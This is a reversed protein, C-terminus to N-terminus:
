QGRKSREEEVRHSTRLLRISTVLGIGGVLNGFASWGMAGLFDLWGYPTDGTALGAMMLISDLVSHFLQASVLVFPMVIAPVIKVGLSEDAHQMRTMLTLVGGALVALWFSRWSVGLHAYYTGSEVAIPHLQPLAAMAIAAFVLGGVLNLALSVVWLRALRPWSGPTAAAAVVPVLFNESFLESRAMLLAVFGVTFALAALLRSQTQEEVVLYALVGVAVDIGGLFATACLSVLPRQLRDDGESVLREFAEEIETDERGPMPEVKHAAKKATGAM